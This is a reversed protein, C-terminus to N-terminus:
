KRSIRNIIQLAADHRMENNIMMGESDSGLIRNNNVTFQRTVSVTNSTIIPEGNAKMVSFIVSYTLEYQRPTTSAGVSTLQRQESDKEIILWYSAKLPDTTVSIGYGQLPDRLMPIFDRHAEKVIIAVNTLWTPMTVLGRLKFGCGSLLVMAFLFAYRTRM